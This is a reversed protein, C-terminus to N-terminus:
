KLKKIQVQEIWRGKKTLKKSRKLCRQKERHRKKMAKVKEPNNKRWERAVDTRHQKTKGCWRKKQAKM